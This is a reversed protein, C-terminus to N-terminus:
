KELLNKGPKPLDIKKDDLGLQKRQELAQIYDIILLQDSGISIQEKTLDSNNLFPIDNASKNYEKLANQFLDNFSTTTKPSWEEGLVKSQIENSTLSALNAGKSISTKVTQQNDVNSSFAEIFFMLNDNRLEKKQSLDSKSAVKIARKPTTALSLEYDNTNAIDIHGTKLPPPSAFIVAFIGTTTSFPSSPLFNLSIKATSVRNEINNAKDNAPSLMDNISGSLSKVIPDFPNAPFPLSQTLKAVNQLVFSFDTNKKKKLLTVDLEVKTYVNKNYTLPFNDLLTGEIPLSIPGGSYKSVDVLYLREITASQNTRTTEDYGSVTAKVLVGAQADERFLNANKTLDVSVLGLTIIDTANSITRSSTHGIRFIDSGGLQQANLHMFSNCSFLVLLLKLSKM